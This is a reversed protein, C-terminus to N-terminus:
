AVGVGQVVLVLLLVGAACREVRQVIARWAAATTASKAREANICALAYAPDIDLFVALKITNADDMTAVRQWRDVTPRTVDLVKAIRYNTSSPYRQAITQRALDLLKRTTLM